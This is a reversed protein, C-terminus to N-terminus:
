EELIFAEFVLVIKISLFEMEDSRQRDSTMQLEFYTVGRKSFRMAEKKRNVEM